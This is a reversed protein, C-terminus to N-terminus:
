REPVYKKDFDIKIVTPSLVFVAIGVIVIALIAVVAPIIKKTTIKKAM